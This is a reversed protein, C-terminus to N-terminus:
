NIIVTIVEFLLILHISLINGLKYVESILCYVSVTKIELSSSIKWKKKGKKPEKKEQEYQLKNM